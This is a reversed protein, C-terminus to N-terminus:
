RSPQDAGCICANTIASEVIFPYSNTASYFLHLPRNMYCKTAMGICRAM